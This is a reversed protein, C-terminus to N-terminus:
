GWPQTTGVPLTPQERRAYWEGADGVLLLVAVAVGAALTILSVLSTIALLSLLATMVASVVLMIRAVNSRRLALVALIMSVVCWLALVAVMVIVLTVIDDPSGVDEISPEDRIQDVMDDRAVAMGIAALVSIVLTIGASVLTIVCAATVNGPRSVPGPAPTGYPQQGYVPPYSPQPSGFPAQGYPNQGYPPPTESM